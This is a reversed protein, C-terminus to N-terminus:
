LKSQRLLQRKKRAKSRLSLAINGAMSLAFLGGGYQAPTLTQALLPFFHHAAVIAGAIGGLTGNFQVHRSDVADELRSLPHVSPSTMGELKSIDNM